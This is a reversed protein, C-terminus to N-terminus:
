FYGIEKIKYKIDFNKIELFDTFNKKKKKFCRKQLFVM